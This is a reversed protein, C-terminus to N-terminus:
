GGGSVQRIEKLAIDIEQPMEELGETKMLSLLRGISATAIAECDQVAVFARSAPHASGVWDDFCAFIVGKAALEPHSRVLALAEEQSNAMVAVPGPLQAVGTSESGPEQTSTPLSANSFATVTGRARRRDVVNKNAYSILASKAGAEICSRSLEEAAQLNDTTVTPLSMSDIPVDVVVLPFNGESLKRLASVDRIDRRNIIAGDALGSGLANVLRDFVKQRGFHLSTMVDFEQKVAALGVQEVLIPDLANSLDPALFWFANSKRSRLMRAALNPQYGLRRATEQIRAATAANVRRDQRLARSITSMDVGCIRALDIITVSKM